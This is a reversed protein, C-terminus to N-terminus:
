LLIITEVNRCLKLPFLLLFQSLHITVVTAALEFPLNFVFCMASKRQISYDQYQFVYLQLQDNGVPLQDNTFM